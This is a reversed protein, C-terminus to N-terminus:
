FANFANELAKLYAKSSVTAGAVIDVKLSQKELVQTFIKDALEGDVVTMDDLVNIETIVGNEVVVELENSWRRFDYSGSYRGDEQELPYIEEIELAAGEKLGRSFYFLSVATGLIILGLVILIVRIIKGKNKSM